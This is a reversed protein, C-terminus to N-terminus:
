IAQREQLEPLGISQLVRDFYARERALRKHLEPPAVVPIALMVVAPHVSCWQENVEGLDIMEPTARILVATLWEADDFLESGEWNLWEYIVGWSGSEGSLWHSFEELKSMWNSDAAELRASYEDAFVQWKALAPTDRIATFTMVGGQMADPYLASVVSLPFGTLKQAEAEGYADSVWRLAVSVPTADFNRTTFGASLEITPFEALRPVMVPKTM